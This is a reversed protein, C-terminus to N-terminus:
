AANFGELMAAPAPPEAGFLRVEHVRRTLQLITGEMNAEAGRYYDRPHRPATIYIETPSYHVSRGKVEVILPYIDLYSLLTQFPYHSDRLDDFVVIKQGCYGDFWRNGSPKSYYARDGIEQMVARTKGSGAPGYYWRVVLGGYLGDADRVRRKCQLIEQLARIGAHYRIFDSPYAEAIVELTEGERLRKGITALDTRAGQGPGDPKEGHETFGFGAAADRTEEKSCYAISEAVTGRMVELHVRPSILRKVGGLERPNKFVVAGQLHPTGNEGREPQYCVYVANNALSEGIRVRDDDTYNNLTFVWNRSRAM